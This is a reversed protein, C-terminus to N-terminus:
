NIWILGLKTIMEIGGRNKPLSEKNSNVYEELYRYISAGMSFNIKFGKNKNGFPIEFGYEHMLWLSKAFKYHGTIMKSSSNMEPAPFQFTRRWIPQSYGIGFVIYPNFFKNNLGINAGSSIDTFVLLSDYNGLGFNAFYAGHAWSNNKKIMSKKIQGGIYVGIRDNSIPIDTSDESKMEMVNLAFMFEMNINEGINLAYNYGLMGNSRQGLYDNNIAMNLKHCRKNKGIIRPNIDNLLGLAPSPTSISCSILQFINLFLIVYFGNLMYILTKPPMCNEM